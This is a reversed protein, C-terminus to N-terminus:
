IDRRSIQIESGIGDIGNYRGLIGLFHAKWSCKRHLLCGPGPASRIDPPINPSSGLLGSGQRPACRGVRSLCSHAKGCHVCRYVICSHSSQLAWWGYRGSAATHVLDFGLGLSHLTHAKHLLIDPICNPHDLFTYMM